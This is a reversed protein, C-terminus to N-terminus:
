LYKSSTLVVSSLINTVILLLSLVKSSFIAFETYYQLRWRIARIVLTVSYFHLLYKLVKSSIYSIDLYYIIYSMNRSSVKLISHSKRFITVVRFIKSTTTVM